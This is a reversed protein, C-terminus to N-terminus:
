LTHDMATGCKALARGVYRVTLEKLTPFKETKSVVTHVPVVTRTVSYTNLLYQHFAHTSLPM